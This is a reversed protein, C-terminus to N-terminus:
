DTLGVGSLYGLEGLETKGPSGFSSELFFCSLVGGRVWICLGGHQVTPQHERCGVGKLPRGLFTELTGLITLIWQSEFFPFPFQGIIEEGFIETAILWRERLYNEHFVYTNKEVSSLM